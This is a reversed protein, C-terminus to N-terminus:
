LDLCPQGHADRVMVRLIEYGRRTPNTGAIRRIQDRFDKSISESGELEDDWFSM